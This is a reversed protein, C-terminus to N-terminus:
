IWFNSAVIFNRINQRGPQYRFVYVNFCLIIYETTQYPHPVQDKVNLSSCLNLTKSFLTSLLINPGVLYSTVPPQLCNCLSYCWLKYEENFLRSNPHDFLPPHTLYTARMPQSAQLFVSWESSRPMSPLIINFRIKPFYHPLNHVLKM